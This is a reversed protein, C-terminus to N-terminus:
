SGASGLARSSGTLMASGSAPNLQAITNQWYEAQTHCKADGGSISNFFSSPFCETPEPSPPPTVPAATATAAVTALPALGAVLLAFLGHRLKM